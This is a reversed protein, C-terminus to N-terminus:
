ECKTECNEGTVISSDREAFARKAAKVARDLNKSNKPEEREREKSHGFRGGKHPWSFEWYEARDDYEDFPENDEQDKYSM